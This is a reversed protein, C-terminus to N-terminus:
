EFSYAFFYLFTLYDLAFFEDFRLRSSLTYCSMLYYAAFLMRHIGQCWAAFFSAYVLSVSRPAPLFANIRLHGFPPVWCCYLATIRLSAFAPFQFM